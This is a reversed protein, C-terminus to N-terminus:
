GKTLAFFDAFFLAHTLAAVFVGAGILYVPVAVPICYVAIGAPQLKSYVAVSDAVSARNAQCYWTHWQKEQGELRTKKRCTGGGGDADGKVVTVAVLYRLGSRWPHM